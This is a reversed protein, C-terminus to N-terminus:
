RYARLFTDVAALAVARIEGDDPKRTGLLTRAEMPGTLLALLQEAALAPDCARLRGALCQRALRDALAEAVRISTRRYVSETLEPFHVIQAHTLRRLASSREDCCIRLLRYAVDQLVAAFQQDPPRLEDIVALCDAQVADAAAEVSQRFLDAKDAFHNYVTPKAVAAEAAVDRVGAHEYGHRAFVTFAARLIADRKAIRGRLVTATAADAADTAEAMRADYRRAM